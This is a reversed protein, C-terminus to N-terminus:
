KDKQMQRKDSREIQIMRDTGALTLIKEIRQTPNQLRFDAGLEQSTTYRGLILGLGSSDMFEVRSLNMVVHKPRYLYIAKDSERRLAAASHHDIDGCVTIFLTDDRFVCSVAETKESVEM